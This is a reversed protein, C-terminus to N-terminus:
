ASSGGGKHELMLAGQKQLLGKVRNAFFALATPLEFAADVYNQEVQLTGTVAQGLASLRFDLHNDRWHEDLGSITSSFRSRAEGIGSRLRRTAEEKGLQHAVRVTVLRSM